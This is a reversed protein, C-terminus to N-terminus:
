ASTKERPSPWVSINSCVYAPHAPFVSHGCCLRFLGMWHLSHLVLQVPYTAALRVGRCIGYCRGHRHGSGLSYSDLPDFLVMIWSNVRSSLGKSFCSPGDFPNLRGPFQSHCIIRFSVQTMSSLHHTQGLFVLLDKIGYLWWVVIPLIIVMQIFLGRYLYILSSIPKINDTTISQSGSSEDPVQNEEDEQSSERTKDELKQQKQQIKKGTGRALLNGRAQAALTSLASSLGVSLSLGTVNCLTTALAAAGLEEAGVGGVFRLSILWPIKTLILSYLTPLVTKMQEDVERRARHIFTVGEEPPRIEVIEANFADELLSSTESAVHDIRPAM